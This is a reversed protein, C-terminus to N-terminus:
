GRAQRSPGDMPSVAVEISQRIVDPLSLDFFPNHWGMSRYLKMELRVRLRPAIGSRRELPRGPCLR